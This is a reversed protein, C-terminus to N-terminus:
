HPFSRVHTSCRARSLARALHSSTPTPAPRSPVDCHPERRLGARRSPRRRARNGRNTRALALLNVATGPRARPSRPCPAGKEQRGRAQGVHGRRRRPPAPVRPAATHFPAPTCPGFARVQGWIPTRTRPTCVPVLSDTGRPRARSRPRSRSCSAAARECATRRPISHHCPPSRLCALARRHLCRSRCSTRM